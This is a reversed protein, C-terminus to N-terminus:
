GKTQTFHFALLEPSTCPRLGDFAVCVPVSDFIIWCTRPQTEGLSHRNKEFGILGSGVSWQLGHEGARSESYYSVIDGVQCSGVM